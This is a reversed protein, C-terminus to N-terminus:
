HAVGQQSSSGLSATPKTSNQSKYARTGFRTSSGYCWSSEVQETPKIGEPTLEFAWSLILAFPFGEALLIIIFSDTWGPLNLPQEVSVVIQIVLWVLVLYAFGVKFVNRRKLEELISSM